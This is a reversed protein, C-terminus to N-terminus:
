FVIKPGERLLLIVLFYNAVIRQAAIANLQHFINYKTRNERCHWKLLWITALARVWSTTFIANQCVFLTCKTHSRGVFPSVGFVWVCCRGRQNPLRFVRESVCGCVSPYEGIKDRRSFLRFRSSRFVISFFLSAWPSCRKSMCFQWNIQAFGALLKLEIRSKYVCQSKWTGFVFLTVCIAFLYIAFSCSFFIFIIVFRFPVLWFLSFVTHTSLQFSFPTNTDCRPFYQSFLSTVSLTAPTHCETLLIRKSEKACNWMNCM